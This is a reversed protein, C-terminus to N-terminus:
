FAAYWADGIQSNCWESNRAFSISQNTDELGNESYLISLNM